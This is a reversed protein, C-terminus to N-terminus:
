NLVRKRASDGQAVPPKASVSARLVNRTLSVPSEGSHTLRTDGLLTNLGTSMCSCCLLLLHCLNPFTKTTCHNRLRGAVLLTHDSPFTTVKQFVSKRRNNTEQGLRALVYRKLLEDSRDKLQQVRILVVHYVEPIKNVAQAYHTSGLQCLSELQHITKM